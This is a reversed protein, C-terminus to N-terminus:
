CQLVKECNKCKRVQDCTIATSKEFFIRICNCPFRVSSSFPQNVYAVGLGLEHSVTEELSFYSHPVGHRVLGDSFVHIWQM